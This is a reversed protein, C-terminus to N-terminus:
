LCFSEFSVHDIMWPESAGAAFQELLCHGLPSLETTDVAVVDKDPELGKKRKWKSAM